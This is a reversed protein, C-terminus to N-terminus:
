NLLKNICITLKSLFVPVEGLQPVFNFINFYDIMNENVLLSLKLTTQLNSILACVIGFM